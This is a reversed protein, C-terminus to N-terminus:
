SKEAEILLKILQKFKIKAYWGLERNAKSPDAASYKLESPRLLAKNITVYQQWDLSLQEFVDLVFDKLSYSEGTAIVYDSASSQQLMQWMAEVYDAAYGWDRWIDLNGLELKINEGQSIKVATSVIKKTVFRNSRLPSEHNFLIGSCVFLGYADRYNSTAWFATAKASAYPSMPKFPATENSPIKKNMPGFCESSGANYLRIPSNLYRMVELIQLTGMAISEMTEIPQVFSLGVSSQGALNYIEDPETMTIIQLLNRFDVLSLSHLTVEQRIGLITLRSFPNIEADRSTGHVEYGQKLLFRALYAGDQGSIGLILARKKPM